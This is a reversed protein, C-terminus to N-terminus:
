RLKIGAAARMIAALDSGAFYVGDGCKEPEGGNRHCAVAGLGGTRWHRGPCATRVYGRKIKKASQQIVFGMTRESFFSREKM